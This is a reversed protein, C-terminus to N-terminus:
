KSYIIPKGFSKAIGDMMQWTEVMARNHTFWNHGTYPPDWHQEIAFKLGAFMEGTFTAVSDKVRLYIVENWNGLPKTTLTQFDKDIDKIQFGSDLIVNVAKTFTIGTVIIKKTGKPQSLSLIPLFLLAVTLKM